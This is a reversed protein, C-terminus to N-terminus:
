NQHTIKGWILTIRASWQHDVVSATPSQHADRRSSETAGDVVLRAYVVFHALCYRPDKSIDVVSCNLIDTSLLAKPPTPRSGPDGVELTKMSGM